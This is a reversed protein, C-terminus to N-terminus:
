VPAAPLRGVRSGSLCTDSMRGVWCGRGSCFIGAGEQTRGGANPGKQGLELRIEGEGRGLVAGGGGTRPASGEGRLGRERGRSKVGSKAAGEVGGCAARVMALGWAVPSAGLLSGKERRGCGGRGEEGRV